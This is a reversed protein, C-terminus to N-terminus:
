KSAKPKLYGADVLARIEGEIRSKAKDAEEGPRSGFDAATVELGEGIIGRAFSLSKGEALVYVHGTAEPKATAEVVPAPTVLKPAENNAM